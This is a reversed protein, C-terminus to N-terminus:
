AVPFTKEPKDMSDTIGGMSEMGAYAFVAYTIFSVLAMPSSFQPNPSAAFSHFGDIPEALQGGNLFLIVISAVFFLATLFM